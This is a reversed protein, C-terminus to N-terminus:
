NAHGFYWASRAGIVDRPSVAQGASTSSDNEDDLSFDPVQGSLSGSGGCGVVLLASLVSGRM